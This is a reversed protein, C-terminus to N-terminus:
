CLSLVLPQVDDWSLKWNRLLPCVPFPTPLSDSLPHPSPQTLILVWTAQSGAQSVVSTGGCGTSVCFLCGMSFSCLCCHTISPQLLFCACLLQLGMVEQGRFKWALRYLITVWTLRVLLKAQNEFRSVEQLWQWSYFNAKYEYHPPLTGKFEM